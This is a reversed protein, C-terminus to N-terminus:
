STPECLTANWMGVFPTSTITMRFPPRSSGDRTFTGRALTGRHAHWRQTHTLWDTFRSLDGDKRPCCVLHWHNSMLCYSILRMRFKEVAEFGEEKEFITMQANARNLVHYIM